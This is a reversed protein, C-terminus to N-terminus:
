RRARQAVISLLACGMSQLDTGSIGLLARSEVSQERLVMALALLQEATLKLEAITEIM